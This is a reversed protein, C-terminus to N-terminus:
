YIIMNTFDFSYGSLNIKFKENNDSQKNLTNLFYKNNFDLYLNYPNVKDIMFGKRRAFDAFLNFVPDKLIRQYKKLDDSPDTNGIQLCLGTNTINFYKSSAFGTKTTPRSISYEKIYNLCFKILSKTDNVDKYLEPFNFILKWKELM